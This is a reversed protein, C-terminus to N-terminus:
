GGERLAAALERKMQIAPELLAGEEDDGGIEGEALPGTRTRGRWSSSGRQEVAQGVVAFDDLGAVFTPTGFV